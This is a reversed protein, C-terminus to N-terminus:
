PDRGPSVDGGPREKLIVIRIPEIAGSTDIRPASIPLFPGNGQRAVFSYVRGERLDVTFRGDTGSTAGGAGRALETRDGTEDRASVFVSSAPTGDQWTVMGSIRVAALPPPLRWIALDQSQGHSLTVVHPGAGDSPYVTRAYPNSKSPLDSLNVGVIYQGAPLGRIEFYGDHDTRATMTSLEYRRHPRADSATVEITVNAVPRGGSGVTRGTIAGAPSLFYNAQACGYVNAIEVDRIEQYTSFGQPMQLQIRYPGPPLAGFEFRGSASVATREQGGGTLQVRTEVPRAATPRTPDFVHQSATVPGLVRGGRRPAVLSALFDAAEGTGDYEQTQTCISTTWRGDFARKLAFVLYRKGVKFEFGCSAGSGSTMVDLPGPQVGKWAQRVSMKVLHERIMLPRELGGVSEERMTQELSEVTADFVADTIWFAQCAPGRDMCSCAQAAVPHILLGVTTTFAVLWVRRIM